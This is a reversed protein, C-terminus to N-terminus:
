AIEPSSPPEGIHIRGDSQLAVVVDDISRLPRGRRTFYREGGSLGRRIETIVLEALGQETLLIEPKEKTRAKRPM